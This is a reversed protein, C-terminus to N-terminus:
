LAHKIEDTALLLDQDEAEDVLFFDYSVALESPPDVADGVRHKRCGELFHLGIAHDQPGLVVLHRNADFVPEGVFCLANDGDKKLQLLPFFRVHVSRQHGSCFKRLCILVFSFLIGEM